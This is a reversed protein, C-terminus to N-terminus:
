YLSRIRDQYEKIIKKNYEDGGEINASKYILPDINAKECKKIVELIIKQIIFTGLISSCAGSNGYVTQVLADGNPVHNDIVVDAHDFLHTKDKVRSNLKKSELASTVVIVKHGNEKALKAMEIPVANIGSNSVILFAENDKLNLSDYIVKSVGELREFKTSRIAGEHQMLFPVLIPDISVLGGARYFMEEALMHSHGTAFVHLVKKNEILDFIIDAAKDINEKEEKDIKDILSKIIETYNEM